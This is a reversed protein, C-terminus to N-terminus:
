ACAGRRWALACCNLLRGRWAPVTKKSPSAPLDKLQPASLAIATLVFIMYLYRPSNEPAALFIVLYVVLAYTIASDWKWIKSFCSAIAVTCLCLQDLIVFVGSSMDHLRQPDLFPKWFRVIQSSLAIVLKPLFLLFYLGYGQLANISAFFASSSFQTPDFTLGVSKIAFPYLASIGIILIVAARRAPVRFRAFAWFCVIALAQEWRLACSLAILCALLAVSRTKFWRALMVASLFAFIEKNLTLIGQLTNPSAMVLPLFIYWKFSSFSRALLFLAASFVLLNFIAISINSKFVLAVLAPLILNAALSMLAAVAKGSGNEGIYQATDRYVLSDDYLRWESAGKLSPEFFATFSAAALTLYLALGCFAAANLATLRRRMPAANVCVTGATNDM